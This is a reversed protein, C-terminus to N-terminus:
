KRATISRCLDDIFEELPMTGLDGKERSRVAVAQSEKERSGLILMFPIKALQAERIKYGTKENRADIEVRIGKARLASEVDGAYAQDADTIPLLRVQIPALWLPFAGAYHETLCGMFREMSGLVARHVMFAPHEKGDPGVYIVGFRSPLNFDFQITPGQWLRGLADKVKIDIKPGYFVAGGPDEQFPIRKDELVERTVAEAREWDELSGAFKEPRTALMVEYEHFGFTEMMFRALEVTDSMEIKLQEPTCFIHADDQTFGRVRLMGHLVGSREYRYVTGLEALRIPLERYSHRHNKYIMIHFPCNMPKLIYQQGEVDMAGYMNDRYFDLHGSIEWLHARAIHPSNVLQYGRALHEEKWFAEILHRVMAGRPHWFILGPGADEQITFLDLEKGLRRHDRRRAEEQLRLFEDLEARSPFATGYIRQLMQRREDGRWYAGAVSLLKFTKIYRTSPLHPGTCLDVFDGTEYLSVTSVQLDQILEVKYDEGRERFFDIAQESSMERRIFHHDAKVIEKMRAEIKELDEPVFPEARDFDYYFGTEIAPGITVQVDPFLQKVAAAMLHSASHRLIELGAPQELTIPTIIADSEIITNLDVKRGNVEAAVALRALKEDQAKIADRITIGSDLQGLGLGAIEVQIKAM